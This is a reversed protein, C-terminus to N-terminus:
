AHDGAPADLRMWQEQDRDLHLSGCVYGHGIGGDGGISLRGHVLDELARHLAQMATGDAGNRRAAAADIEVDFSLPVQYLNQASFLLHDRGGGTFRDLSNHMATAVKGAMLAGDLPLDDLYVAGARGSDRGAVSGFLAEVARSSPPKGDAVPEAWHERLRHDHFAVRHALAGKVATGPVVVRPELSAVNGQWQVTLESYPMDDPLKGNGNGNADLPATGGGIRLAGESRVDIRAMHYEGQGAAAGSHRQQAQLAGGDPGAANGANGQGQARAMARAQAPMTGLPPLALYNRFQEADRLNFTGRFMQVAEIRGLGSRTLGGIRWRASWLLAQLSQADQTARDATDSRLIVEFTFRHGAPLVARDFHGGRAATGRHGIRVRRRLTPAQLLLPGLLPDAENPLLETMPVPRNHSDHLLGHTFEVSSPTGAQGQAFGFLRQAEASGHCCEFRGRLTGALATGPLMPLGNPAMALRTDDVGDGFGQTISLATRAEVTIRWLTVFPHDPRM